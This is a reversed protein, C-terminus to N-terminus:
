AREILFSIIELRKDLMDATLDDEDLDNLVSSLIYESALLKITKSTGGLAQLANIMPQFTDNM